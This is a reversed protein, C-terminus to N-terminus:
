ESLRGGSRATAEGSAWRLGADSAAFWLAGGIIAVILLLAISLATSARRIAALAHM